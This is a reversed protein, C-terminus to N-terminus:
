GTEKAGERCVRPMLSLTNRAIFILKDQNNGKNGGLVSAVADKIPFLGWNMMTIGGLLTTFKRLFSRRGIQEKTCNNGTLNDKEM